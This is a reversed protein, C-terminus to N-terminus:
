HQGCFAFHQDYERRTGPGTNWAAYRECSRRIREQQRRLGRRRNHGLLRAGRYSAIYCRWRPARFWLKM